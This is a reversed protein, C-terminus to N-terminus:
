VDKRLRCAYLFHLKKQTPVERGTTTTRFLMLLTGTLCSVLNYLTFTYKITSSQDLVIDIVSLM